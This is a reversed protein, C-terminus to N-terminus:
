IRKLFCEYRFSSNSIYNCLSIDGFESLASLYFCWDKLKNEYVIASENIQWCKTYDQTENLIIRVCLIQFAEDKIESCRYIEHSDIIEFLKYVDSKNKSEEYKKIAESLNKATEGIEQTQKEMIKMSQEFELRQQRLRETIEPAVVLQLFLLIFYLFWMAEERNISIM